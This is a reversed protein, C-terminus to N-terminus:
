GLIAFVFGGFGLNCVWSDVTCLDVFCFVAIYRVCACGYAGVGFDCVCVWFMLAVALGCCVM